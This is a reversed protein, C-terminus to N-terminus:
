LNTLKITFLDQFEIRKIVEKREENDRTWLKDFINLADIPSSYKSIFM